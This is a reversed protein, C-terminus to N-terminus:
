EGWVSKEARVAEEMEAIVTSAWARARSWRLPNGRKYRMRRRESVTHKSQKQVDPWTM